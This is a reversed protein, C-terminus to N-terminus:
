AYMEGGAFMTIALNQNEKHKGRQHKKLQRLEILSNMHTQTPVPVLGLAKLTFALYKVM